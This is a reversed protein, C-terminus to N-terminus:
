SVLFVVVRTHVFLFRSSVNDKVTEDHLVDDGIGGGGFDDDDDDDDNMTMMMVMEMMKMMMMMMVTMMKMSM